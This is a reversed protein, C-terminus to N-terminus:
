YLVRFKITGPLTKLAKFVNEDYKTEVDTIVYGILDNTKLYQGVINIGHSALEANIKALVGPTNEHAHIFRHAGVLLPLQINPFNVAAYTSGTNVYEILKGPVYRGISEQAEETSGGIHPTLIINEM